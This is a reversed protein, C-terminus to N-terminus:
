RCGDGNDTGSDIRAMLAEVKIEGPGIGDMPSLVGHLIHYAIQLAKALPTLTVARATPLIRDTSGPQFVAEDPPRFFYIADRRMEDLASSVRGKM